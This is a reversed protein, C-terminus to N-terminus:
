EEEFYPMFNINEIQDVLSDDPLKYFLRRFESNVLTIKKSKQNYLLIGEPLANFIEKLESNM